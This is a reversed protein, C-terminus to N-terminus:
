ILLESSWTDEDICHYYPLYLHNGFKAKIPFSNLSSSTQGSQNQCNSNLYNLNFKVYSIRINEIIKTQIITTRLVLPDMMLPRWIHGWKGAGAGPHLHYWESGGGDDDEKETCSVQGWASMNNNLFNYLPGWKFERFSFIGNLTFNQTSSGTFLWLECLYICVRFHWVECLLICGRFHRKREVTFWLRSNHSLTARLATRLVIAPVSPDMGLHCMPRARPHFTPCTPCAPLINSRLEIPKEVDSDSTAICHQLLKGFGTCIFLHQYNVSSHRWTVRISSSHPNNRLTQAHAPARTLRPCIRSNRSYKMLVRGLMLCWLRVSRLASCFVCLSSSQWTLQPTHARM